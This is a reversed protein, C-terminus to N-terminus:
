DDTERRTPEPPSDGVIGFLGNRSLERYTLGDWIMLIRPLGLRLQCPICLILLSPSKSADFWYRRFRLTTLYKVKFLITRNPPISGGVEPDM